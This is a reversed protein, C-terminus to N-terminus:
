TAKMDPKGCNKGLLTGALLFPHSAKEEAAVDCLPCFVPTNHLGTGAAIPTGDELYVIEETDVLVFKSTRPKAKKRRHGAPNPTTGEGRVAPFDNNVFHTVWVRRKQWLPGMDLYVIRRADSDVNDRRNSNVRRRDRCDLLVRTPVYVGRPVKKIEM